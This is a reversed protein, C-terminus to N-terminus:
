RYVNSTKTDVLELLKRAFQMQHQLQSKLSANEELSKKCTSLTSTPKERLSKLKTQLQVVRKRLYELEEKKRNRYKKVAKRIQEKRAIEKDHDENAMSTNEFTSILADNNFDPLFDFMEMDEEFAEM